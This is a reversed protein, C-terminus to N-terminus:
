PRGQCSRRQRARRDHMTGVFIICFSIPVRLHQRSPRIAEDPCSWAAEFDSWRWELKQDFLRDAFFIAIKEEAKTWLNDDKITGFQVLLHHVVEASPFDEIQLFLRQLQVVPIDGNLNEEAMLAVLLKLFHEKYETACVRYCGDVLVANAALVADIEADSAPLTSHLHELTLEPTFFTEGDYPHKKLMQLLPELDPKVRVVEVYESGIHVACSRSANQQQRQLLIQTNSLSVSRLAFTDGSQTCLVAEDSGKIILSEKALLDDSLEVLFYECNTNRNILITTAEEASIM